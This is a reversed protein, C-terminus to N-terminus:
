IVEISEIAYFDLSATGNSSLAKTERYKSPYATIRTCARREEKRMEQKGGDDRPARLRRKRIM